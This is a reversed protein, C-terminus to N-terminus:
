HSSRKKRFLLVGGGLGLLLASSPEPVSILTISENGSEVISQIEPLYNPLFTTLSYNPSGSEIAWNTGLLVLEGNVTTFMPAASDGGQLYTEDDGLGQPSPATDYGFTIADGLASDDYLDVFGDLLNRGVRFQTTGSGTNNLGVNFVERNNYTSTSFGSASTTNSAIGYIAVTPGPASDLHGIRIDTDGIRTTSIVTRTITNGSSDNNEYFIVSNEDAPYVHNATVFYTPSIMTLWRGNSARAVGSWDYAAGIFSSDNAFRHHKAADFNQVIMTGEAPLNIAFWFLGGALLTLQAFTKM